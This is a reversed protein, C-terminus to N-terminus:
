FNSCASLELQWDSSRVLVHYGAEGFTISNQGFAFVSATKILGAVKDPSHMIEVLSESISFIAWPGKKTVKM